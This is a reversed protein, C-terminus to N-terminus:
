RTGSFLQRLKAFITLECPRAPSFGCHHAALVRAYKRRPCRGSLAPLLSTLRVQKNDNASAAAPTVNEQPAPPAPPLALQAESADHPPLTTPVHVITSAQLVVADIGSCHPPSVYVTESLACVPVNTNRASPVAVCVTLVVPVIVSM